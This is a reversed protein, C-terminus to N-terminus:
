NLKPIWWNGFTCNKEVAAVIGAIANDTTTIYAM